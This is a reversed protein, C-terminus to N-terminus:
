RLNFKAKSYTIYIIFSHLSLANNITSSKKMVTTEAQPKILNTDRNQPLERKGEV